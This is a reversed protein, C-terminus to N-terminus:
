IIIWNKQPTPIEGERVRGGGWGRDKGEQALMEPHQEM